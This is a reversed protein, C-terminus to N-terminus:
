QVAGNEDEMMAITIHMTSECAKLQLEKQRTNDANDEECAMKYEKEAIELREISEIMMFSTFLDSALNQVRDAAESLPGVIM